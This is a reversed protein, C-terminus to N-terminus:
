CTGNFVKIEDRTLGYLGCVIEDIRESLGAIEAAHEHRSAATESLTLTKRVLKSIEARENDSSPLPPVPVQEIYTKQQTLRGEKDPDGLVPCLRLLFEWVAKSNLVGLLYLDETPMIFCTKNYYYGKDDWAFRSEKAIEPWVIKPKDFEAYYNVTDQIEYWQYAGRKRGEKEKGTKKPTLEVKWQTLHESIAPYGNIDIGRRAFILYIENFNIFYRRVDDGAVLPKIIDASKKDKKILEDRTARDVFFAENFGTLVGRYIKGGVYEGLPVGVGKMKELVRSVDARVLSFGADALAQPALKYGHAKVDQALWGINPGGPARPLRKVAVYTPRTRRGSGAPKGAIVILPFTAADVFVKLEGFDVLQELNFRKIFERLRLGYGARMWKNSVIFGFRGGPKTLRLAREIFAVYLDATPVFTEYAEGLYEKYEGLAEQRVYPPNGIVADFGGAAVVGPFEVAYNLFPVEDKLSDGYSELSENLALNIKAETNFIDHSLREKDVDERAEYFSRRLENLRRVDDNFSAMATVLRGRRENLVEGGVLSNGVRVNLSLNPLLKRGKLDVYRTGELAKIMLNLKAIEVARPDLDVGFINHELIQRKVDFDFLPARGKKAFVRFYGEALEDFARILFSGSGCAPDLIKIKHLDELTRAGKIVEGVTNKVIYDVIYDPTYYVGRARRKAKVAIEAAARAWVGRGAERLLEGLYDEYVEGIVAPSLTEFDVDAVGRMIPEIVGDEIDVYEIWDGAAFLETNFLEDMRRSAKRLEQWYGGRAELAARIPAGAIVRKDGALDMFILRDIIKQAGLYLADDSVWIPRNEELYPWLERRWERLKDFFERKIEEQEPYYVRDRCFRGGVECANEFKLSEFFARGEDTFVDITGPVSDLEHFAYDRWVHKRYVSYVRWRIFNTLIGWYKGEARAYQYINEVHRKDAFEASPKQVDMIFVTFGADDKGVIDPVKGTRVETPTTIVLNKEPWGLLSLLPIVFQAQVDGESRQWGDAAKFREVLNKLRKLESDSFAM